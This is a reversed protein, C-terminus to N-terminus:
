TSGRGGQHLLKWQLIIRRIANGMAAAVVLYFLWSRSPPIQASFQRVATRYFPVMAGLAVVVAANVAIWVWAWAREDARSPRHPQFETM